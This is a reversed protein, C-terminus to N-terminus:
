PGVLRGVTELLARQDFRDKTVYADAGAELGRRRDEDSALSTLIVVPLSSLETDGRIQRLLELGDMGPMQVDTVVVDIDSSGGLRDLADRGDTATVVHYGAAELISRQLERITFQDDVVLVSTSRAGDATPAATAVSHTAPKSAQAVAVAPDVVLAVRGDGLVSGGLYGPLTDLVPGLDKLIVKEEGVLRDCVLAAARGSHTVILAPPRTPHVGPQGGLVAGLDALPVSKGQWELSRMGALAVVNEVTVVEAVNAVPLCMVQGNREVLLAHLVALTLPLLLTISTGRGPESAADLSGGLSEVHSKVADLGVGRGAIDSVSGATSFGPRALLSALSGDQAERLLEASVGRGDDAVEIAVRNGRQEARLEITGREPKDAEQRDQPSEIGHAISNRLLHILPEALGDLIARDLQTDTGSMALEVQKGQELALDRVFRPFAGVISALPVARLRLASHQLEDLLLEGRELAEGIREDPTADLLHELGRQHVLAEGVDDLLRDVKDASVRLSAELTSAPQSAPVTDPEAVPESTDALAEAAKDDGLRALAEGAVGVEGAVARRMVDTAALLPDALSAPLPGDKERADSLVEEIAHAITHLDDFGVLGAAGKLSHAERFLADIAEASATEAEIALLLEVMRDIREGAEERFIERVHAPAETV